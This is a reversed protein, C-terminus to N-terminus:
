NSGNPLKQWIKSSGCMWSPCDNGDLPDFGNDLEYKDDMGDRDTDALTPNTGHNKLEEYDSLGDGDTDTRHPNTGANFEELNTLGDVDADLAGDNSNTPDLGNALEWKDNMGDNDIDKNIPLLVSDIWLADDGESINIDKVYRWKITHQGTSIPYRYLTWGM